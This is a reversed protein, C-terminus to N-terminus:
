IIINVKVMGHSDGYKKELTQIYGQFDMFEKMSPRAVPCEEIMEKEISM